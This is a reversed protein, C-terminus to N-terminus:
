DGKIEFMAHDLWLPPQVNRLFLDCAEIVAESFPKGNDRLTEEERKAILVALRTSPKIM